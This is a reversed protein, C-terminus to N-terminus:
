LQFRKRFENMFLKTIVKQQKESLAFFPRPKSVKGGRRMGFHQFAAYKAPEGLFFLRAQNADSKTTLSSWMQSTFTLDVKGTYKGGKFKIYAESYPALPKMFADLSKEQTRQKIGAKAFEAAKGLAARTARPRERILKKLKKSILKANTKITIEM